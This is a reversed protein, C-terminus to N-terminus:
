QTLSEALLTHGIQYGTGQTFMEANIYEAMWDAWGCCYFIWPGYFKAVRGSSDGFQGKLHNAGSWGYLIQAMVEMHRFLNAKIAEGVAIRPEPISRWPIKFAHIFLVKIGFNYFM